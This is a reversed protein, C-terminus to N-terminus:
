CDYYDIGPISRGGDPSCQETSGVPHRDRLETLTKRLPGLLKTQIGKKKCSNIFGNTSYDYSTETVETYYSSGFEGTSNYSHSNERYIRIPSGCFITIEGASVPLSTTFQIYASGEKQYGVETEKLKYSTAASYDPTTFRRKTGKGRVLIELGSDKLETLLQLEAGVNELTQGIDRVGQQKKKTM